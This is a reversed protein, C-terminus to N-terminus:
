SMRGAILLCLQSNSRLRASSSAPHRPARRRNPLPGSRFSELAATSAKKSMANGGAVRDAGDLANSPLPQYSTGNWSAQGAKQVPLDRHNSQHTM